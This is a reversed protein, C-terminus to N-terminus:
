FNRATDCHKVVLKCLFPEINVRDDDLINYFEDDIKSIAGLLMDKTLKDSLNCINTFAKDLLYRKAYLMREQTENMNYHIVLDRLIFIVIDISM